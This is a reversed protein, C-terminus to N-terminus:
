TGRTRRTLDMSKDYLQWRRTVNRKRSSSCFFADSNHESKSGRIRLSREAGLPLSNLSGGQPRDQPLTTNDMISSFASPGPTTPYIHTATSDPRSAMHINMEQWKELSLTHDAASDFDTIHELTDIANIRVHPSSTNNTKDPLPRKLGWDGRNRSSAPATIAQRTPYPQTATDSVKVQGARTLLEMAPQPLPPPLSFLRSSRLRRATPSNMAKSM